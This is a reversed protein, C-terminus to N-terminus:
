LISCYNPNNNFVLLLMRFQIIIILDIYLIPYFIRSCIIVGPPKSYWIIFSVVVVIVYFIPHFDFCLTFIFLLTSRSVTMAVFDRRATTWGSAFRTTDFFCGGCKDRVNKQWQRVDVLWVGGALVVFSGPCYIISVFQLLGRGKIIFFFRYRCFSIRIFGTKVPEVPKCFVISLFM